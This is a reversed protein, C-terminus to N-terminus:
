CIPHSTQIRLLADSGVILSPNSTFSMYIEVRAGVGGRGGARVLSVSAGTKLFIILGM